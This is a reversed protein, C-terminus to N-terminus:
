QQRTQSRISPRTCSCATKYFFDEMWQVELEKTDVSQAHTWSRASARPTQEHVLSKKKATM